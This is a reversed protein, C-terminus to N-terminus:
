KKFFTRKCKSFLKRYSTTIRIQHRNLPLISIKKNVSRLLQSPRNEIYVQGFGIYPGFKLQTFGEFVTGFGILLIFIIKKM